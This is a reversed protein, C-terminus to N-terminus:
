PLDNNGVQHLKHSIDLNLTHRNLGNQSVKPPLLQEKVLLQQAVHKSFCVELM